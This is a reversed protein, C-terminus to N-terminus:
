GFFVSIGFGALVNPSRSTLGFDASLDLQVSPTLMLTFGGGALAQDLGHGSYAAAAEIFAAITSSISVNLNPSIDFRNAGDAREANAYFEAASTSASRIGWRWASCRLDHTCEHIGTRWERRHGGCADGVLLRSTVVAARGQDRLQRRRPWRVTGHQRARADRSREVVHRDASRGLRDRRSSAHQRVCVVDFERRRGICPRFRPTRTGVRRQQAPLTGTSFAIGPRDFAPADAFASGFWCSALSAILIGAHIWDMGAVKDSIARSRIPAETSAPRRPAVDVPRPLREASLRLLPLDSAGQQVFAVVTRAPDCGRSKRLCVDARGHRRLDVGASIAGRRPRDARRDNRRLSRRRAFRRDDRAVPERDCRPLRIAARATRPASRCRRSRPASRAPAPARRNCHVGGRQRSRARCVDCPRDRRDVRRGSRRIPCVDRETDNSSVRKM